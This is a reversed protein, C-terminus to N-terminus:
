DIRYFRYLPFTPSPRWGPSYYSLGGAPINLVSRRGWLFWAHFAFCFYAAPAISPRDHMLCILPFVRFPFDTKCLYRISCSQRSWFLLGYHRPLLFTRSLTRLWPRCPFSLIHLNSWLDIPFYISFSEPCIPELANWAAEGM